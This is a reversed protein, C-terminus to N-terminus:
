LGDGLFNDAMAFELGLPDHLSSLTADTSNGMFSYGALVVVIAAMVPVLRWVVRNWLMWPSDEVAKRERITAM